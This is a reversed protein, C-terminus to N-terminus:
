NESPSEVHDIVLTDVPVKKAELTLGLQIQVAHILDIGPDSDAAIPVASTATSPTTAVDLRFGGNASVGEQLSKIRFSLMRETRRLKDPSLQLLPAFLEVSSYM